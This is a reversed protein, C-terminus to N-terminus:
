IYMANQMLFFHDWTGLYSYVYVRGKPLMLHQKYVYM